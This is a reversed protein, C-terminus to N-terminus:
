LATFVIKLSSSNLSINLAKFPAVNFGKNKLVRCLAAALTSKGVSSATGLFMISKKKM